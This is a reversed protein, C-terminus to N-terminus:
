AGCALKGETAGPDPAVLEQPVETELESARTAPRSDPAQPRLLSLVKQAVAPDNAFVVVASSGSYVELRGGEEFGAVEAGREDPLPEHPYPKGEYTYNAVSRRCAPWTQVELPPACGGNGNEPILRKAEVTRTTGDASRCTLRITEKGAEHSLLETGLWEDLGVRGRVVDVCHSFHDLVEDKTALYARDADLTWKIDAATFFPHPQHLRVYPYTDVWMGGARSRRDIILVRHDKTLYKSAVALANLGAVGAGVVALDYPRSEGPPVTM